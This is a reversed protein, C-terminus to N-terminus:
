PQQCWGKAFVQSGQGGLSDCRTCPTFIGQAGHQFYVHVVHSFDLIHGNRGYDSSVTGLIPLDEERFPQGYLEGGPMNYVIDLATVIAQVRSFIRIREFDRPNFDERMKRIDQKFQGVTVHYATEDVDKIAGM